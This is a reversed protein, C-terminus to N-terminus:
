QRRKFRLVYLSEQGAQKRALVKTAFGKAAMRRTLELPSNESVLVVYMRGRSSLAECALPLFRNLVEMGDKGGAWAAEIGRSACASQLEEDDTPVYPPNFVIVDLSEKLLLDANICDVLVRNRQATKATTAAARCNIDSAFFVGCPGLMQALFTIVCGSGPGVELCVPHRLALLESRDAELSDMLVLTDDDPEYVHEYDATRLHSLDPM